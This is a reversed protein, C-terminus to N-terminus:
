APYKRSRSPLLSFANVKEQPCIPAFLDAQLCGPGALYKLLTTGTRSPERELLVVLEADWVAELPDERTRWDRQSKDRPAGSREIRRGSRVSIGAKAAAVEQNAGDERYQM